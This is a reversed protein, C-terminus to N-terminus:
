ANAGKVTAVIAPDTVRGVQDAYVPYFAPAHPDRHADALDAPAHLRAEPRQGPLTRTQDVLAHGVTVTGDNRQYTVVVVDGPIIVTPDFVVCQTHFYDAVASAPWSARIGGVGVAHDCTFCLRVAATRETIPAYVRDYDDRLDKVPKVDIPRGTDDRHGCRCYTPTPRPQPEHAPRVTWDRPPFDPM